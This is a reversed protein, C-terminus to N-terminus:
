QAVLMRIKSNGGDGVYLRGPGVAISSPGNFSAANGVGDASGFSISGAITTVVGTPTIMRIRGFDVVFANDQSDIGIGLPSAFSAAAGIGDTVAQAGSGAFTSVEGSLSLKRILGNGVDTVYVTGSSDVAIGSPGFFTAGLAPGNSAGVAGTGAITTVLGSQTIRRIKNNGADAVYVNGAADLALGGLNSFSALSGTADVSGISGSGALSSVAGTPSVIRVKFNGSDAVYVNGRADTAIGTPYNFSAAQGSGDASGISGSGALTTVTGDTAIKRIKHNFSDAVFVTGSRDTAVSLPNAFSAASANGDASGYQGSGSFTSVTWKTSTSGDDGGGCSSLTTLALLGSLAGVGLISLSRLNQCQNM